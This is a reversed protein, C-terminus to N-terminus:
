PSLVVGPAGPQWPAHRPMAREFLASATWGALWRHLHPWPQMGFWAADVMAFQRVFPMVAADALAPAAGFLQGAPALLADLRLLFQAGRERADPAADEFRQPYKYRDLQPKFGSDCEAVLALMDGLTGAAPALWHLPDSRGLAWRMIDLSQDIVTGDPLVLVPVTGKPSAALMDAPKHKLVVERLECCQGSALLALRARMAYPCRRFSYFVPLRPHPM